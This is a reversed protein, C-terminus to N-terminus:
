QWELKSLYRNYAFWKGSNWQHKGIDVEHGIWKNELFFINPQFNFFIDFFQNEVNSTARDIIDIGDAYQLYYQAHNHM